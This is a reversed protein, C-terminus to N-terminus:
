AGVSGKETDQTLSHPLSRYCIKIVSLHKHFIIQISTVGIDINAHNKSYNLRSDEEIM